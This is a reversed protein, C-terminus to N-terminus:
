QNRIKALAQNAQSIKQLQKTEKQRGQEAKLADTARDKQQKLSNIRSQEPTISKITKIEYLRMTYKHSLNPYLRTSVVRM